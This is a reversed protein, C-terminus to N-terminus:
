TTHIIGVMIAFRTNKAFAQSDRRMRHIGRGRLVDAIPSRKCHSAGRLLSYAADRREPM